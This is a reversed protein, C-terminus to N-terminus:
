WERVNNKYKTVVQTEGTPEGTAEDIVDITEEYPTAEYLICDEITTLAKIEQEKTDKLVFLNIGNQKITTIITDYDALTVSHKEGYTDKVEPLEFEKGVIFNQLDSYGGDVSFGLGTDVIPRLKKEKYVESLDKLMRDKVEEIPKAISNYSIVYKNDVIGKTEESNYYKRNPKSQYEIKYYGYEPLQEDALKSTYLTGDNTSIVWPLETVKDINQDYVKM